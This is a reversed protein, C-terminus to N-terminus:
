WFHAICCGHKQASELVMPDHMATKHLDLYWALPPIKSNQLFGKCMFGVIRMAIAQATLAFMM